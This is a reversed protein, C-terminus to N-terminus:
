ANFSICTPLEALLRRVKSLPHDPFRSDYIPDDSMFRLVSRDVGDYSPDYPDRAFSREYEKLDLRGQNFLEATVTAERVGTTGLEQCVVNIAIDVDSKPFILMGYYMYAPKMLCKFIVQLGRGFLLDVYDAQILGGSGDRAYCRAWHQLSWGPTSALSTISHEKVTGVTIASEEIDIWLRVEKEGSTVLQENWGALSLGFSRLTPDTIIVPKEPQKRKWWPM